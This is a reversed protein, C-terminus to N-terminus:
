CIAVMSTKNKKAEKIPNGHGTCEHSHKHGKGHNCYYLAEDQAKFIEKTKADIYVHWEGLQGHAMNTVEYALIAGKADPYILLEATEFRSTSQTGLYNRAIEKAENQDFNANVEKIEINREYSNQVFEVKSSPSISITLETQRVPLNLYTQRYRVVHGANSSRTAHHKLSEQWNEKLGLIELNNNIYEEAMKIPTAPAVPFSVAYLSTPFDKDRELKQNSEYREIKEVDFNYNLELGTPLAAKQSFSIQFAFVLVGLLLLKVFPLKNSM